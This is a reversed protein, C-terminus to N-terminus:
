LKNGIIKISELDINDFKDSTLVIWTTSCLIM